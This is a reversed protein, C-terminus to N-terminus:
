ADEGLAELARAEDEEIAALIRAVEDEDHVGAVGPRKGPGQAQCWLAGSAAVLLLVDGKPTKRGWVYADGVSKKDAVAVAADLDANQRVKVADRMVEDFFHASARTMDKSDLEILRVGRRKLEPIFNGGPGRVDVAFPVRYKEFLEVVRDVLWGTGPWYEVVELVEGEGAAVIGAASREPNVDFMFVGATAEVDSRCVKSWASLPIVRDDSATPINLYARKFEELPMDAYADEVVELTITRGLAPMCGWWTAPDGPDQDPAASWEFYARGKGTDAEVAARGKAVEANLAVSESTGMTSATLAQAYPRTAMAPNMAQDRRMDVDAFLEDKVGLDLTKGHGSDEGSALLGLRSGNTWSVSESGNTRTVRKVGFLRRHPELLPVQDELLKERADKGTQASYLIRQPQGLIKAWGVARQVEWGLILTTKGSQRPVTFGVSRYAPRGDPLLELGVDAVLQQWPMLPQGLKAAVAGVAPGLTAREPRRPTAWRPRCLDSSRPKVM